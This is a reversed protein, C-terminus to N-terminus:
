RLMWRKTSKWSVILKAAITMQKTPASKSDSIGRVTTCIRQTLMMMSVSAAMAMADSGGWCSTDLRGGNDILIVDGPEAADIAKIGLHYKGKTLGAATLKVTVVPGVIKGMTHWMPRIGYTSGKLGLADLADSVNTSSLKEFRSRYKENFESM